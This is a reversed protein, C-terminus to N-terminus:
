PGGSSFLPPLGSWVPVPPLPEGCHEPPTVSVGISGDVSGGHPAAMQASEGFACQTGCSLTGAFTAACSAL